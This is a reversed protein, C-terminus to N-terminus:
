PPVAGPGRYRRCQQYCLFCVDKAVCLLSRKKLIKQLKLGLKFWFIEVQYVGETRINAITNHKRLFFNYFKNHNKKPKHLLPIDVRSFFAANLNSIL